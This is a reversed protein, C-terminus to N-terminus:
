LNRYKLFLTKSPIILLISSTFFDAMLINESKLSTSSNTNFISDLSPKSLLSIAFFANILSLVTLLINDLSIFFYPM